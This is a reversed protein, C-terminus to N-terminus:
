PRRLKIGDTYVKKASFHLEQANRIAVCNSSIQIDPFGAEDFCLKSSAPSNSLLIVEANEAGRPLAALPLAM